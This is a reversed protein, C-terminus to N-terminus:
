SGNYQPLDYDSLILDPIPEQLEHIFDKESAVVKSNFALGAEQFEFKILEADTPNDELILIRLSEAMILDLSNTDHLESNM